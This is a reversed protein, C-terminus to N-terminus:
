GSHRTRRHRSCGELFRQAGAKRSGPRSELVFGSSPYSSLGDQVCYLTKNESSEAAVTKKEKKKGLYSLLYTLRFTLQQSISAKSFSIRKNTLKILIRPSAVAKYRKLSFILNM